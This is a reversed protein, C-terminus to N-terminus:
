KNAGTGASGAVKKGRTEMGVHGLLLTMMGVDFFDKRSWPAVVALAIEVVELNEDIMLFGFVELTFFTASSQIGCSAQTDVHTLDVLLIESGDVVGEGVANTKVYFNEAHLSDWFINNLLVVLSDQSVEVLGL